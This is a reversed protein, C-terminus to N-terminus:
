PSPTPVVVIAGATAPPQFPHMGLTKGFETGLVANIHSYAIAVDLKLADLAAQHQEFPPQLAGGLPGMLAFVRERIRDPRGISDEDHLSNSTLEDRLAVLRAREAPPPSKKLRADIENLARDLGDIWGFCTALYKHRAARQDATWPSFPDDALTFPQDFIKGDVHLRATYKGPLAEPGTGPGANQFSTGLWRTPGDENGDWTIRNLGVDNSVYYKAREEKPPDARDFPVQGRLTRVPKGSADAIEFWPREKAKTRQYFTLM